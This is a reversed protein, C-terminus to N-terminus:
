HTTSNEGGTKRLYVFGYVGGVLVAGGIINGITVPILNHWFFHFADIHSFDTPSKQIQQWFAEGGFEKMTLGLPIFYLNAISHEFGCSVFATVPFLIAMIKGTVDTASYSMWVALCVLINCLIGLSISQLFSFSCKAEAINMISLGVAGKGGLPYRSMFILMVMLLAGLANGTYVLIWNRLLRKTNIKKNAWAMIILNNGTFLEAGSIIVLILGISFAFGGVLRNFGYGISNGSMVTTSFMCGFAIFAGALIALIITKVVGMNTKSVGIEEATLAMEPPLLLDMQKKMRVQKTIRHLYLRFLLRHISINSQIKVCSLLNNNIQLDYDGLSRM